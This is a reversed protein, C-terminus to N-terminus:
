GVQANAGIVRRFEDPNPMGGPGGPGSSQEPGGGGMMGPPMGGAGMQQALGGFGAQGGPGGGPQIRNGAVSDHTSQKIKGVVAHQLATLFHVDADPAAMLTGLTGLISQLGQLMSTPQSGSESKPM